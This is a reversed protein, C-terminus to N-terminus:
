RAQPVRITFSGQGAAVTGEATYYRTYVDLWPARAGSTRRDYAPNQLDLSLKAAQVTVKQGSSSPLWYGDDFNTGVRVALRHGPELTWDMSRLTLTTRGNRALVSIMDNVQVATGDPAVDWLEGVVNGSGKTNVTIQPTGTLRVARAVPASYTTLSSGPAAQSLKRAAAKSPKPARLNEMDFRGQPARGRSGDDPRSGPGKGSGKGSGSSAGPNFSGADGTDTYSGKALSVQQRGTVNPWSEEARWTGRNDQVAYAPFPNTSRDGKLYRDYFAMVETFWGPRGMKLVGADNVDNGRVHEWPGIWGRQPGAHNDLYQQFDEPKTNDEVTGQTVFLPVRSGKAQTALDRARWYASQPDPDQTDTLNNSLCQPNRTEYTANAKYRSSDDAMPAITAISNYARPTGLHNYRRVGNNFLYNYMDWVPEQAVVADPGQDGLNAGVLGTSADYSKGYMGVKGTSWPQNRTWAIAAAVDAQEGPGVWDLCGTSGGFGRLDVLVVTYGRKMLEAGDILDNFRESPGTRTFGDDGTQGAHSFYPGVSLIVPTKADAPLNAPRLVDAHLEAGKSPFYEETWAAGEPVRENEEHTVGPATRSETPASPSATAPLPYAGASMAGAAALATGSALLRRSLM